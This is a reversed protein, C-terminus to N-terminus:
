VFFKTIKYWFNNLRPNLFYWNCFMFSISPWSILILFHEPIPEKLASKICCGIKCFIIFSRSSDPYSKSLKTFHFPCCAFIATDRLYKLLIISIMFFGSLQVVVQVPYNLSEGFDVEIFDVTSWSVSSKLGWGLVYGKVGWVSDM